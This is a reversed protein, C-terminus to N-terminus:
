YDLLRNVATQYVIANGTRKVEMMQAIIIDAFQKFTLNSDSKTSYGLKSRLKGITFADDLELLGEEIKYYTKLLKLNLRKANPHNKAIQGKTADWQKEPIAVGSNITYIKKSHTIRFIVNYTGDSKVRRTDLKTKVTGM